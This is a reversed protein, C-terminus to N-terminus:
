EQNWNLQDNLRKIFYRVIAIQFKYIKKFIRNSFVIFKQFFINLSVGFWLGMLGGLYQLYNLLEFSPTEIYQVLHNGSDINYQLFLQNDEEFSIFIMTKTVYYEEFVCDIPCLKLCQEKIKNNNECKQIVSEDCFQHINSNNFGHELIVGKFVWVLCMYNLECKNRYCKTICNDFSNSEFATQSDDYYSCDSKYPRKLFIKSFKTFSIIKNGSHISFIEKKNSDTVNKGINVAIPMLYYDYTKLINKLKNENLNLLYKVSSVRFKNLSINKNEIYFCKKWYSKESDSFYVKIESIESLKYCDSHQSYDILRCEILQQMNNKSFKDLLSHNNSLIKENKINDLVKKKDYSLTFNNNIQFERIFGDEFCVIFPPIILDFNKDQIGIL